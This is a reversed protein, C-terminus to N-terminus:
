IGSRCAHGEGHPCHARCIHIRKRMRGGTKYGTMALNSFFPGAPSNSKWESTFSCSITAIAQVVKQCWCVRVWQLLGTMTLSSTLALGAAASSISTALMATLLSTALVIISALFDLRVGLWRGACQFTLFAAMSLDNRHEFELAFQREARAARICVSGAVSEVVQSYVPSKFISDLRKLERSSQLYLQQLAIFCVTVLVLPLLFWPLVSAIIILSGVSYFM